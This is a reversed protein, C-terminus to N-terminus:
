SAEEATPEPPLGAAELLLRAVASAADPRGLARAAAGMESCAKSDTLLPGAVELLREATLEADPVLVAAGAQTLAAANATQEDAAAYPYPVLISPLGCATLEAITSAGSRCLVLDALAYALDMREIFPVCAVPPAAVAAQWAAAVREADRQGAAHLVQVDGLAALSAAAGVAASNLREAGLSGGFVLLTRRDPRLGFAAAAEARLAERDASALGRVEARVPNGTFVVRDPHPFRHEVGPVSIAVRRAWRAAIRNTLGPVANQEHLVLPVGALRAAAALPGATYGGFAGAALVGRERLLRRLTLASSLVVAPVALNSLSVKRRLPRSRVTHLRWGAAPVLTAELRDATGVFEVDLDPRLAKLAQATALAPTIHGGTGGGSLVIRPTM